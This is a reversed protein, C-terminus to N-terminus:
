LLTIAVNKCIFLVFNQYVFSIKNTCGNVSFAASVLLSFSQSKAEERERGPKLVHVVKQICIPVGDFASLYHVGLEASDDLLGVLLHHALIIGVSGM